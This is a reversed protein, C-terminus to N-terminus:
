IRLKVNSKFIAFNQEIFNSEIRWFFIELIKVIEHFNYIVM